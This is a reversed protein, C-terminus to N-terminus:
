GTGVRSHTPCSSIGLLDVLTKKTNQPEVNSVEENKKCRM